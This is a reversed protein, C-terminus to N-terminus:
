VPQNFIVKSYITRLPLEMAISDLHLVEAEEFLQVQWLNIGQRRYLSAAVVQSDLLLYEQLTEIKGYDRFKVSRDFEATNKSLVEVILCPYQLMYGTPEERDDCSVSVEPYYFPGAPSCAVKQDSNFVRCLSDILHGHVAATVNVAILNHSKSGGAMSFIRGYRYEYKQPQEREWRLFQEPSMPGPDKSLAM